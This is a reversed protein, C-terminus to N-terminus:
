YYHKKKTKNQSILKKNLYIIRTMHDHKLFMNAIGNYIILFAKLREDTRDFYDIMQCYKASIARTDVIYSSHKFPFM